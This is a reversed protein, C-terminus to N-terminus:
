PAEVLVQHEFSFVTAHPEVDLVQTAPGRHGTIPDAGFLRVDGIMDVGPVAQLVAFIEGM